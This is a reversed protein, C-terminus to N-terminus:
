VTVGAREAAARITREALVGSLHKRQRISGRMDDIPRAADRCAAAAAEITADSLPQGILADAAEQVLLVTPAVAGIAIRAWSVNGGEFRLHSGCNTVAIDMENRPIFRQWAAGSGDAPTPFHLSVIFEGRQLVNEGPGTCFEEVSVQREGGPGALNAVGEMVIQAPISDGAPGSNALNGGLTARGQIAIGGIVRSAEVLAPYREQVVDSGYVEYLPTAAGVTLGSSADFEIGTTEPIHKVDVFLDVDRRRERALVIIDTGGALPYANDGGDNLLQVAEQVSAPRAYKLAQLAAM